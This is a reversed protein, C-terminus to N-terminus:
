KGALGASVLKRWLTSRSIGLEQAARGKHWSNRELAEVIARMEADRVTGGQAQRVSQNTHGAAPAIQTQAAPQASMVAPAPTHRIDLANNIDEAGLPGAGCLLSIRECFNRLERINGPWSHAQMLKLAEASVPPADRGSNACATKLFHGALLGIDAVRERLPPMSLSLVNLHYLLETNFDGAAALRALDKRSSSIVRVDVPIIREQALRMLEREQLVRLIRGQLAPPLESVKDLFLTGQHAAELLGIKWETGNVSHGFLIKELVDEAFSACNLTIFPAAARPSANHVAQALLAKGTGTEGQLLLNGDAAGFRMAKEVCQTFSPSKGLCDAFSHRAEQKHAHMATRISTEIAQIRRTDQLTVVGGAAIGNELLPYYSLLLTLGDKTGAINFKERAPLTDELFPTQGTGPLFSAAPQGIIDTQMGQPGLLLRAAMLNADTIFANADLLMVGKLLSNLGRRLREAAGREVLAARAISAAEAIALSLSDKGSKVLVAPVNHRKAAGTLAAGGIITREGNMCQESLFHFGEEESAIPVVELPVDLLKVINQAGSLMKGTGIITYPRPNSRTRMAEYIASIIDYGSAPIEVYYVNPPIFPQMVEGVIGRSIVVHAGSVRIQRAEETGAVEFVELTVNQAQWEDILTRALLAMEPYTAVLVIKVAIQEKQM